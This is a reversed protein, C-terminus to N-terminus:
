KKPTLTYYWDRERVEIETNYEELMKQKLTEVQWDQYAYCVNGKKLQIVADRIFSEDPTLKFSTDNTQEQEM